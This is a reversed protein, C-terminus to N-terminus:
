NDWLEMILVVKLVSNNISHYNYITQPPITFVDGAIVTTVVDAIVFEGSGDIIYYIREIDNTHVKGHDDTIEAYVVSQYPSLHTLKYNWSKTKDWDESTAQNKSIKM